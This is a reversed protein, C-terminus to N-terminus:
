EESGTDGTPEVELEAEPEPEPKPAPKAKAKARRRKPKPAPVLKIDGRALKMEVHETKAVQVPIEARKPDLEDGAVWALGGPHAEHVESLAVRKPDAPVVWVLPIEAM